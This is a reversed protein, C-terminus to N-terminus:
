TIVRHKETLFTIPHAQFTFISGLRVLLLLFYNNTAIDCRPDRSVLLLICATEGLDDVLLTLVLFSVSSFIQNHKARFPHSTNLSFIKSITSNGPISVPSHLNKLISATERKETEMQKILGIGKFCHEQQRMWM